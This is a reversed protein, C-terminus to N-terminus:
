ATPDANLKKTSGLIANKITLTVDAPLSLPQAEIRRGGTTMDIQQLPKGEERDAILAAAKVNGGSAQDYIAEWMARKKSVKKKGVGTKQKGIRRLIDSITEKPRGNPNGSYGSGAQFTM